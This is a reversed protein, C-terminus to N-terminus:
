SKGKTAALYDIIAAQDEPSVPAKYVRAMKGVEATWEARSLPPQNLVMGASHCTVCNANIADAPAGGPFVRDGVPLEVSESRFMMPAPAGDRAPNPALGPTTGPALGTAPAPAPGPSAACLALLAAATAARRLPKTMTAAM